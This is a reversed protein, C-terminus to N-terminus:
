PTPTSLTTLAGTTKSDIAAQAGVYGGCLATWAGISITTLTVAHAGVEPKYFLLGAGLATFIVIGILGIKTMKWKKGEGSGEQLKETLVRTTDKQQDTM